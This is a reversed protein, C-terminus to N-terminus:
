HVVVLKGDVLAVHRLLPVGRKVGVPGLAAPPECPKVGVLMMRDPGRYRGHHPGVNRKSSESLERSVILFATEAIRQDGLLDYVSVDCPLDQGDTSEDIFPTADYRQAPQRDVQAAAERKEGTLVVDAMVAERIVVFWDHPLLKGLPESFSRVPGRRRTRLRVAGGAHRMLLEVPKGSDVGGLSCAFVAQRDRQEVRDLAPQGGAARILEGDPAMGKEGVGARRFASVFDRVSQHCDIFDGGRDSHERADGFGNRSVDQQRSAAQVAQHRGRLEIHEFVEVLWRHLRSLM